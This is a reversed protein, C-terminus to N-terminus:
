SLTLTTSGHPRAARTRKAARNQADVLETFTGTFVAHM